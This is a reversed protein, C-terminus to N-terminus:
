WRRSEVVLRSRLIRDGEYGGQTTERRVTLMWVGPELRLACDAMESSWWEEYMKGGTARSPGVGSRPNSAGCRLTHTAGGGDRELAIVFDFTPSADCGSRRGCRGSLPLMHREVDAVFYVAPRAADVELRLSEPSAPGVDTSGLHQPWHFVAIALAPIASVLAAVGVRWLWSRPIFPAENELDAPRGSPTEAPPEPRPLERAVARDVIGLARELRQEVFLAHEPRELGDVLLTAVDGRLLGKVQYPGKGTGFRERACSFIQVLDDAPVEAPSLESRRPGHWVRVGRVDARVESRNVARRALLELRASVATTLPWLVLVLWVSALWWLDVVWAAILAVFLAGVIVLERSVRASRHRWCILVAPPPAQGERYGATADAPQEHVEFGDPPRLAPRPPAAQSAMAPRAAETQPVDLLTGCHECTTIGAVRDPAPVNILAQCRRCTIVM